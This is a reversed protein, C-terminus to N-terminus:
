ARKILGKHTAKTLYALEKPGKDRFGVWEPQFKIFSPIATALATVMGPIIGGSYGAIAAHYLPKLIGYGAWWRSRSQSQSGNQYSKEM